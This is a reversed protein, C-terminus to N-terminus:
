KYTCGKQGELPPNKLIFYIFLMLYFVHIRERCISYEKEVTAVPKAKALLVSVLLVCASAQVHKSVPTQEGESGPFV